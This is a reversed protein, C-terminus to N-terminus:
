SNAVGVPTSSCHTLPLTLQTCHLAFLIYIVIESANIRNIVQVAHLHKIQAWCILYDANIKIM